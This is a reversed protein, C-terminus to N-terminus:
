SVKIVNGAGAFIEQDLLVDSIIRDGTAAANLKELVMNSNFTTESTIDLPGYLSKLDEFEELNQM